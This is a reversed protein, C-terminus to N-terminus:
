EYKMHRREFEKFYEPDVTKIWKNLMASRTQVKWAKYVKEISYKEKDVVNAEDDDDFYFHWVDVMHHPLFPMKHTKIYQEVKVRNEEHVHFSVVFGADGIDSGGGKTPPSKVKPKAASEKEETPLSKVKPKAVSEKEETSWDPFLRKKTMWGMHEETYDKKLKSYGPLQYVLLLDDKCGRKSSRDIIVIVRQERKNIFEGMTQQIRRTADAKEQLSVKNDKVGIKQSKLFACLGNEPLHNNLRYYGDGNQKQVQDRGIIVLDIQMPCCEKNSALINAIVQSVMLTYGIYVNINDQIKNPIL